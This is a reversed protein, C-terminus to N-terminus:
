QRFIRPPCFLPEGPSARCPTIDLGGRRLYAVAVALAQPRCHRALDTFIREACSEHFGPHQRYSFLYALLGRREIAAGRYRIYVEGWDPQGTVPCVSRFLRSYLLEQCKAGPAALFDPAPTEAEAPVELEDLCEGDVPQPQWAPHGPLKALSCLQVKVAAGVAASLDRCLLKAAANAHALRHNNLSHLYLKLSKSEILTSTDCPFVFRAAAAEPQGTESRWSLEWAHWIDEGIFPLAANQRERPLAYLLGPDYNEPLSVSRGLPMDM